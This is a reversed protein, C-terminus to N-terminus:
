VRDAHPSCQFDNAFKSDLDFLSVARSIDTEEDRKEKNCYSIVLLLSVGPHPLPLSLSMLFSLLASIAVASFGLFLSPSQSCLIPDASHSTYRSLVSYQISVSKFITSRPFFWITALVCMPLKQGAWITALVCMPLKQGAWITALVCMPM